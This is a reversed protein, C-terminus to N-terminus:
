IPMQSSTLRTTTPQSLCRPSRHPRSRGTRRDTTRANPEARTRATAGTITRATQHPRSRHGAHWSSSPEPASKPPRATRIIIGAPARKRPTMAQIARAGPMWLSFGAPSGATAAWLAMGVKNWWEWDAPGKNPIQDLATAIRLLEAQPEAPRRSLLDEGNCRQPPAAEILPAVACLFAHLQEETVAPLQALPPLRPTWLIKGGSPHVSFSLLQQGEGLIEIKGRKGILTIKPQRGNAARCVLAVRTSNPRRRLPATGLMTFALAVIQQVVDPYDVDIDAVRLDDCLLGTNMAHKVPPLQLCEPPNRRAREPWDRGLPQKACTLVSLPRYGYDWLGTRGTAIQQLTAETAAAAVSATIDPTGTSM